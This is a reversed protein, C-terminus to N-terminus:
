WITPVEKIVIENIYRKLIDMYKHCHIRLCESLFM